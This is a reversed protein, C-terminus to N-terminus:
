TLFFFAFVFSLAGIKPILYLDARATLSAQILRINDFFKIYRNNGNDLAMYKARVAFRERHKQANSIYV